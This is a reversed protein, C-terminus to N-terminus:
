TGKDERVSEEGEVDRRTLWIWKEITTTNVRSTWPDAGFRRTSALPSSVIACAIACSTGIANKATMPQIAYTIAECRVRRSACRASNWVLNNSRMPEARSGPSNSALSAPSRNRLAM